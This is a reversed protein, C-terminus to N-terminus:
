RCGIKMLENLYEFQWESVNLESISKNYDDQCKYKCKNYSFSQPVNEISCTTLCTNKTNEIIQKLSEVNDKRKKIFMSAEYIKNSISKYCYIVSDNHPLFVAVLEENQNNKSTSNNQQTECENKDIYLFDNPSIECCIKNLCESEKLEIYGGGCRDSKWCKVINDTKYSYDILKETKSPSIPTTSSVIPINPTPITSYKNLDNLMMKNGLLILPSITATVGATILILLCFLTLILAKLGSFKLNIFKTIKNFL